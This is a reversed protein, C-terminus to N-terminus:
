ADIVHDLIQRSAMQHDLKCGFRVHFEVDNRNHHVGNRQSTPMNIAIGSARTTAVLGATILFATVGDHGFRKFWFLSLSERAAIWQSVGVLEKM